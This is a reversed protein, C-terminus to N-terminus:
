VSGASSMNLNNWREKEGGGVMLFFFAVTFEM